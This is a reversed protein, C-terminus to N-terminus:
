DLSARHGYFMNRVEIGVTGLTFDVHFRTTSDMGVPPREGQANCIRIRTLFEDPTETLVLNPLGPM